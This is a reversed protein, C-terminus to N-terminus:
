PAKRAPRSEARWSVMPLRRCRRSRHRRCKDTMTGCHRAIRGTEPQRPTVLLPLSRPASSRCRRVGPCGGVAPAALSDWLRRGAQDRFRPGLAGAARARFGPGGRLDSDIRGGPPQGNAPGPTSLTAQGPHRPHLAPRLGPAAREAPIQIRAPHHRRRHRLRGRAAQSASAILQAEAREIRGALATDCFLPLRGANM